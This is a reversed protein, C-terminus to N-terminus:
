KQPNKKNKEKQKQVMLLIFMNISEVFEEDEKALPDVGYLVEKIVKTDIKM